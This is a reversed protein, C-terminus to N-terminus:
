ATETSQYETRYSTLKDCPLKLSSKFAAITEKLNSTSPINADTVPTAQNHCYQPDFLVSVGLSEGRVSDMLAPLLSKDIGRCEAPRPDFDEILSIKIKKQKDFEHKEFVAASMPISSEKRKKPVKWQCLYSTLPLAVEEDDSVASVTAPQVQFGATTMAVLAHM